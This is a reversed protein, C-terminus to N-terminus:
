DDKLRYDEHCGKCSQGVRRHAEGAAALDGSAAAEAFAATAAKAEDAAKQFGARDSWTTDRARTEGFDSGEPFLPVLDANLASLAQAHMALAGPPSVRGRLIQSSAGMHGGIAKMVQQRYQIYNEPETAQAGAAVALLATTLLLTPKM